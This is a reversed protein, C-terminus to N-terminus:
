IAGSGGLRRAVLAITKATCGVVDAAEQITPAAAWVQRVYSVHEDKSM